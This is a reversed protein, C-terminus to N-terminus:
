RQRPPIALSKVCDSLWDPSCSKVSCNCFRKAKTDSVFIESVRGDELALACMLGGLTTTEAPVSVMGPHAYVLSQKSGSLPEAIPKGLVAVVEPYSMGPKIRGLAAATLGPARAAPAVRCAAVLIMAFCSIRAIPASTPQMKM